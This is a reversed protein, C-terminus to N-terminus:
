ADYPNKQGSEFLDLFQSIKGELNEIEMLESETFINSFGFSKIRKYIRSLWGRPYLNECTSNVARVLGSCADCITQQYDQLRKNGHRLSDIEAPMKAVEEQIEQYAYEIKRAKKHITVGWIVVIPALILGSLVAMGGAIGAGGAAIAGGGFWALTANTAAIGSLTSIATGTSAAGAVSVLAWSGAFLTGGGVAGVSAAAFSSYSDNLRDIRDIVHEGQDTVIDLPSSKLKKHTFKFIREARELAGVAQSTASDIKTLMEKNLANLENVQDAFDKYGNFADQYSARADALRGIGGLTLLDGLIYLLDKIITLV